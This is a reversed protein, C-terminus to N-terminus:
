AQQNTTKALMASFDPNLAQASDLPCLYDIKGPTVGLLLRQDEYGVVLLFQRNGLSKMELVHLKKEGSNRARYLPLGHKLFYYSFFVLCGVLVVYGLMRGLDDLSPAPPSSTSSAPTASAAPQATVQEETAQVASMEAAEMVAPWTLALIAAFALRCAQKRM